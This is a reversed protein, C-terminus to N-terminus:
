NFFEDGTAFCNLTSGDPQELELPVNALPAGHAVIGMAALMFLVICFAIGALTLKRKM